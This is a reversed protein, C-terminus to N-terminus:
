RIFTKNHRYNKERPFENFTFGVTGCLVVGRTFTRFHAPVKTMAKDIGATTGIYDYRLDRTLNYAPDFSVFRAGGYIVLHSLWDEREPQSWITGAALTAYSLANVAHGWTKNGNDNLGDGIGNLISWAFATGLVKLAKGQQAHSILFSFLLLIILLKKM